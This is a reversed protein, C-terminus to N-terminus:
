LVPSKLWYKVSGIDQRLAKHFGNFFTEFQGAESESVEMAGYLVREYTKTLCSFTVDGQRYGGLRMSYIINYESLTQRDSIGMGAHRLRKLFYKYYDLVLASAPMAARKKRWRLRYAYRFLLLAAIAIPILLLFWLYHTHNKFYSVTQLFTQTFSQDPSDINQEPTEFPTEMESDNESEENAFETGEPEEQTSLTDDFITKVSAVGLTELMDMSMLHRILKLEETPPNLPKIVLAFLGVAVLVSVIGVASAQVFYRMPRETCVNSKQLHTRYVRYMFMALVCMQLLVVTWVMIPFELFSAGALLITGLAFLFGTGVRTRTLLLVLIVTIVAVLIYIKPDYYFGSYVAASLSGSILLCLIWDPLRFNGFL